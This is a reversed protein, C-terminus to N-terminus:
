DLIYEAVGDLGNQTFSFVVTNREPNYLTAGKCKITSSPWAMLSEMGSNYNYQYLKDGSCYYFNLGDGAYRYSFNSFARPLTVLM